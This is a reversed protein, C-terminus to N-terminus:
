KKQPRWPGSRDTPKSFSPESNGHAFSCHAGKPCSLPNIKYFRCLQTKQDIDTRKSLPTNEHPPRDGRWKSPQERPLDTKHQWKSRTGPNEIKKHVLKELVSDQFLVNRQNADAVLDAIDSRMLTSQNGLIILSFKARTFAVNLRRSEKLFGIQQDLNARVCSIIVISSEGGQFGDVTNVKIGPYQDKLADYIRNVQAAYFSIIAVHNVVHILHQRALYNVISVTSQVESINMFGNGSPGSVENGHVNIFAYPALFPFSNDLQPMVYDKGSVSVHNKLKGQYYHRSPWDSIEPHMRYQITLMSQSQKCDKNLREMMSRGFKLREAKQSIVTAPLQKIDGILLCKKPRTKLAILTEAEVAQGAEDVILTDIPEMTKFRHQGSVSLTAFIIQAHDLLQKELGMKSGDQAAKELTTELSSLSTAIHSLLMRANSVLKPIECTTSANQMEAYHSVEKWTDPTQSSILHRYKKINELILNLTHELDEFFSLRYMKINEVLLSFRKSTAKLADCASAIRIPLFKINGHALKHPQYEFLITKFERLVMLKQLCWSNLFINNLSGDLPLKKEVGVLIVPVNPHQQIFREALIHVAKNSPACVLVREDDLQLAGLLKTVTTTKGTGPPGEIIHLGQELELFKKVAVYQSPDLSFLVAEKEFSFPKLTSDQQLEQPPLIGSLISKELPTEPSEPDVKCAEFMRQLTILSGLTKANWKEDELFVFPFPEFLGEDIVVKFAAQPTPADPDSYNALAILCLQPHRSHELLLVDGPKIGPDDCAIKPEPRPLITFKLETTNGPNRAPKYQSLSFHYEYEKRLKALELGNQLQARAEEFLLEEFGQYYDMRNSYQDPLVENKLRPNPQSLQEFTWNLVRKNFIYTRDESFPTALDTSFPLRITGGETLSKNSKKDWFEKAVSPSKLDLKVVLITDVFADMFARLRRNDLTFWKGKHQVIRIPEIDDPNLRGSSLEQVTDVLPRGNSFTPSVSSQSFAIKRVNMRAPGNPPSQKHSRVPLTPSADILSWILEQGFVSTRQYAPEVEPPTIMEFTKLFPSNQTSTLSQSSHAM